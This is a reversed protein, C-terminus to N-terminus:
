LLREGHLALRRAFVMRFGCPHQGVQALQEHRLALKFFRLLHEAMCQRNLLLLQARFMGLGRADEATEPVNPAEEAVLRAGPPVILAGQVHKLSAM